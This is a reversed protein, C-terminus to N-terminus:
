VRMLSVAFFAFGPIPKGSLRSCFRELGYTHKGAQTVVVEDGALLYVKEPRYVHQCFFVWFRMAWPLAQSFVRQVTRYSGGQGAWRSLGLMTVRGPMVLM